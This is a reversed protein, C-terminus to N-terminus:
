HSLVRSLRAQLSEPVGAREVDLSRLYSHFYERSSHVASGPEAALDSGPAAALDSGPRNRSLDSLDAFVTLLDTEGAVARRGLEARGALYGALMRERDAPGADFGLLLDRLDRL